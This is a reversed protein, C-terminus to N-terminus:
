CCQNARLIKNFYKPALPLEKAVSIPLISLINKIENIEDIFRKMVPAGYLFSVASMILVWVLLITLLSSMTGDVLGQQAMILDQTLLRHTKSLVEYGVLYNYTLSSSDAFFETNMATDTFVLYSGNSSLLPIECSEVIQTSGFPSNTGACTDLMFVDTFTQHFDNVYGFTAFHIDFYSRYYAIYAESLSNPVPSNTLLATQIQSLGSYFNYDGQSTLFFYHYSQHQFALSAYSQAFAHVFYATALLPILLLKLYISKNFNILKFRKKKAFTSNNIKKTNEVEEDVDIEGNTDEVHLSLLFKETKSSFQQIQIESIDLFIEFIKIREKNIKHIVVLMVVAFLAVFVLGGVFMLIEVKMADGMSQGIEAERGEAAQMMVEKVQQSNTLLYQLSSNSATKFISVLDATSHAASMNGYVSVAYNIFSLIFEDTLFTQNASGLSVTVPYPSSGQLKISELYNINDSYIKTFRGVTEPSAGVALLQLDNLLSLQKAVAGIILNQYAIESTLAQVSQYHSSFLFYYTIYLALLSVMSAFLIFNVSKAFTFKSIFDEYANKSEFVAEEDKRAM